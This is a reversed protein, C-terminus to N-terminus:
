NEKPITYGLFLFMERNAKLFQAAKKSGRFTSTDSSKFAPHMM